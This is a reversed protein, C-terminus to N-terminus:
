YGYINLGNKVEPNGAGAYSVISEIFNLDNKLDLKKWRM